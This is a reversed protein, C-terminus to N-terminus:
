QNMVWCGSGLVGIPAQFYVLAKMDLGLFRMRMSTEAKLADLSKRKTKEAPTTEL